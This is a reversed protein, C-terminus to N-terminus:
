VVERCFAYVRGVRVTAVCACEQLVELRRPGARDDIDDVGALRELHLVLNARSLLSLTHVGSLGSEEEGVDSVSREISTSHQLSM